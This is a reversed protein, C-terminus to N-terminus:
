AGRFVDHNNVLSSVTSHKMDQISVIGLFTWIWSCLVGFASHWLYWTTMSCVCIQMSKQSSQGEIRLEAWQCIVDGSLAVTHVQYILM